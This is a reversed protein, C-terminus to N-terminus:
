KAADSRRAGMNAPAECLRMLEDDALDFWDDPFAWVRRVLGGDECILCRAARAGPTRTSDVEFIRWQGNPHTVHRQRRTADYFESM